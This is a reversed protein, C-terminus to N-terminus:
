KVIMEKFTRGNTTMVLTYTGKDLKSINLKRGLNMDGKLEEKYLLHTGSDYLKIDMSEKELALKSIFVSDDKIRVVPKHQIIENDFKVVHYEVNFPIIKLKTPSDVEFFYNGNPLTTLDFKKTFEINNINERHLVVGYSDKVYVDVPEDYNKLTLLVLKENIEDVKISPENIMAQSTISTAVVVILLSRKLLNKM